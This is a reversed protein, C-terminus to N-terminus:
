KRYSSSQLSPSAVYAERRRRKVFHLKTLSHCSTATITQWWRLLSRREMVDPEVLYRVLFHGTIRSATELRDGRNIQQTQKMNISTNNQYNITQPEKGIWNRFSTNRLSPSAVVTNTKFLLIPKTAPILIGLRGLFKAREQYGYVDYLINIIHIKMNIKIM